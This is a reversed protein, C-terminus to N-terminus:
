RDVTVATSIAAAISGVHPALLMTNRIHSGDVRVVELPRTTVAGWASTMATTWHESADDGLYLVIGADVRPPQYELSAVRLHHEMGLFLRRDSPRVGFREIAVDELSRRLTDKVEDTLVQSSSRLRAAAFRPGRTRWAEVFKAVRGRPDAVGALGAEIVGLYEVDEGADLLRRAVDVGVLGGTSYGLMRYPGAPQATVLAEYCYRGLEEITDFPAREGRTGPYEVGLVRLQRDLRGVLQEFVLLAGDSGPWIWLPPADGDGPQLM